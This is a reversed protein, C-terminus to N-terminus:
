NRACTRFFERLSSLAAPPQTHALVAAFDEDQVAHPALMNLKRALAVLNPETVLGAEGGLSERFNFSDAVFYWLAAVDVIRLALVFHLEEEPPTAIRTHPRLSRPWTSATLIAGVVNKGAVDPKAPGELRIRAAHLAKIQSAAIAYEDPIGEVILHLVPKSDDFRLRTMRSHAPVSASPQEVDNM